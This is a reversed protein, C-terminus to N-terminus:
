ASAKQARLAGRARTCLGPSCSFSPNGYTRSRVDRVFWMRAPEGVPSSAPPAVPQEIAEVTRGYQGEESRRCGAEEVKRPNSPFLQSVIYSLGHLVM